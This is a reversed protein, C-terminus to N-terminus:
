PYVRALGEAAEGIEARKLRRAEASGVRQLAALPVVAAIMRNGKMLVAKEIDGAEIRAVIRNLERMADRVTFLEANSVHISPENQGPTM